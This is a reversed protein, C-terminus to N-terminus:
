RSANRKGPQTRALKAALVQRYREEVTPRILGTVLVAISVDDAQAIDRLMTALDREVQISKYKAKRDEWSHAPATDATPAPKSARM